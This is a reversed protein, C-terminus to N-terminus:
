LAEEVKLRPAHATAQGILALRAFTERLEAAYGEVVSDVKDIQGTNFYLGRMPVSAGLEMLLPALNVTPAMSHGFDAGTMLAVATVGRLGSAPYRDLFAKLLGTYSAKYTPSAFIAFNSRAVEANLEAMTESPWRFLEEIHDALDIVRINAPSPGVFQAAFMEAIRCTRSKPKPNGVVISIELM